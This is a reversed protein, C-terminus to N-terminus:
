IECSDDCQLPIIKRKVALENYAYDGLGTIKLLYFVPLVVWCLPLRCFIAFLSAYGYIWQKGDTTTAMKEKALNYDIKPYAANDRLKQPIILGLWDLSGVIGIFRTCNPCWNDYFVNLKKM